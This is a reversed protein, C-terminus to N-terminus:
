LEALEKPSVAGPTRSLEDPTIIEVGEKYVADIDYVAHIDELPNRRLLVFDARKGAELTGCDDIGMLEAGTRTAAVLAQMPTWGHEVLWQLEYGFFGHMSDTGVAMKVGSARALETARLGAARAERLKEMIFPDAGDGQEIGKPHNRITNNTVLFVGREVMEALQEPTLMTGHEISRIGHRIAYEAGLGGHAHTSVFLGHRAAEEIITAIEEETYASDALSGRKSSVGGTTFIKIHDVGRAAHDRVATRLADPGDVGGAASGHGGTPALGRGSVRLRPGVIEGRAIADRYLLDIDGDETMIRATTVGSAIMLRLNEVGRVTQWVKPKVMQAHQDGEGPRITIHTHSDIFGPIIVDDGADIVPVGEGTLEAATGVGAILGDRVLLGVGEQLDTGTGDIVGRGSIFYEATL